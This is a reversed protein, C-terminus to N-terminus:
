KTYHGTSKPVKDTMNIKSSNITHPLWCVNFVKVYPPLAYLDCGQKLYLIWHWVESKGFVKGKFKWWRIIQWEAAYWEWEDDQMSWSESITVKIKMNTEAAAVQKDNAAIFAFHTHDIPIIKRIDTLYIPQLHMLIQAWPLSFSLLM